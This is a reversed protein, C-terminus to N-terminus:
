RGVLYWVVLATAVLWAAYHGFLVVADPIRKRGLHLVLAKPALNLWTVSHFLLFLLVVGHFILVPPSVLLEQFRTYAEQGKSVVWIEVMLLVAAYGVALSTLERTIFKGYAFKQLWWFIPYRERYWKPHYLKYSPNVAARAARPFPNPDEPRNM